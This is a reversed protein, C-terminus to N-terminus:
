TRLKTWCMGEICLKQMCLACHESSTLINSLKIIVFRSNHVCYLVFVFFSSQPIKGNSNFNNHFNLKLITYLFRFCEVWHWCHIWMMWNTVCWFLKEIQKLINYGLLPFFRIGYWLLFLIQIWHRLNGDLTLPALSYHNDTPVCKGSKKRWLRKLIRGMQIHLM